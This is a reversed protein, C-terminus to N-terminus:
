RNTEQFLSYTSYQFTSIDYGQTTPTDELLLSEVFLFKLRRSTGYRKLQFPLFIQRVKNPSYIMRNVKERAAIHNFGFHASQQIFIITSRLVTQEKLAHRLGIKSFFQRPCVIMKPEEVRNLSQERTLTHFLM